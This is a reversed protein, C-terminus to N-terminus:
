PERRPYAQLPGDCGYQNGIPTGEPCEDEGALGWSSGHVGGPEGFLWNVERESFGRVLGLAKRQSAGCWL